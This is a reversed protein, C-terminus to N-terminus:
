AYETDALFCDREAAFAEVQEMYESFAGVDLDATSLPITLVKGNPLKHDECGLFRSKFYMHWQDASYAAGQPKIRESVAHLLLWYRRNQDNNRKLRQRCQPCRDLKAV